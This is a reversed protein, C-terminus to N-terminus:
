GLISCIDGPAQRLGGVIAYQIYQIEHFFFDKYPAQVPKYPSPQVSAQVSSTTRLPQVSHKYLAQGTQKYPAQVAAQVDSTRLKYSCNEALPGNPGMESRPALCNARAQELPQAFQTQVVRSCVFEAASTPQELAQARGAISRLYTTRLKNPNKKITNKRHFVTPLKGFYEVSIKSYM